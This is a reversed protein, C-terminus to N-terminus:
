VEEVVVEAVEEMEVEVEFPVVVAHEVERGM